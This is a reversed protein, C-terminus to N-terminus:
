MCVHMICKLGNCICWCVYIIHLVCFRPPYPSVGFFIITVCWLLFPTACWLFTHNAKFFITAVMLVVSIHLYRHMDATFCLDYLKKFELLLWPCGLNNPDASIQVTTFAVMTTPLLSYIQQLFLDGWEEKVTSWVCHMAIRHLATHRFQVVSCGPVAISQLMAINLLIICYQLMACCYIGVSYIWRNVNQGCLRCDAYCVILFQCM